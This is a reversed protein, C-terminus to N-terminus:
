GPLFGQKKGPDWNWGLYWSCLIYISQQIKIQCCSGTSQNRQCLPITMRRTLVRVMMKRIGTGAFHTPPLPKEWTQKNHNLPQFGCEVALFYIFFYQEGLGVDALIESEPEPFIPPLSPGWSARSAKLALAGVGGRWSPTEWAGAHKLRVAGELVIHPFTEQSSLVKKNLPWVLYSHM